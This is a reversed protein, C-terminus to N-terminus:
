WIQTLTNHIHQTHSNKWGHYHWVCARMNMTIISICIRNAYLGCACCCLFKQGVFFIAQYLICYCLCCYFFFMPVNKCESTEMRRAAAAPANYTYNYKVAAWFGCIVRKNMENFGIKYEYVDPAQFLFFTYVCLCSMFRVFFIYGFFQLLSLFELYWFCRFPAFCFILVWVSVCVCICMYMLISSEHVYWIYLFYM